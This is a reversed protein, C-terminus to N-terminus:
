RIYFNRVTEFSEWRNLINLAPIVDRVEKWAKLEGKFPGREYYNKDYPPFPMTLVSAAAEGYDRMTSLAAIPNKAMQFQEKIGLVPIFTKIENMQRTQQFILFNVLKKVEEDDDDLGSALLTFLHAMLFSAFFFTIEAINKYMNRVQIEDLGKVSGPAFTAKFMGTLKGLVGQETQYVYKMVNWFTRYRGEITGLVENDYRKQFRSRFLPYVWKHFQAGLEGLAHQQIVMRDEWAYNGHIQKNVEYIYNTVKTKYDESIEFGPKLTLEQTNENFDFADYIAVKEGTKSNTLMFKDSM